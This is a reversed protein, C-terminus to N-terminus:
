VFATAAVDNDVEDTELGDTPKELTMSAPVGDGM